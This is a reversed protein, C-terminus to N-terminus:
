IVGFWMCKYKRLRRWRGAHAGQTEFDITISKPRNFPLGRWRFQCAIIGSSNSNFQIFNCYDSHQIWLRKKAILFCMLIHSALAMIFHNSKSASISNGMKMQPPTPTHGLVCNPHKTNNNQSSNLWSKEHVINITTTTTTTTTTVRRCHQLLSLRPSPLKTTIAM